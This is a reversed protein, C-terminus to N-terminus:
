KKGHFEWKGDIKKWPLAGASIAKQLLSQLQDDDRALYEEFTKRATLGTMKGLTALAASKVKKIEDKKDLVLKLSSCALSEEFGGLATTADRRVYKDNDSLALGTVLSVDASMGFKGVAVAAAGRVAASKDALLKRLPKLADPWKREGLARAADARVLWTHDALYLILVTASAHTELKGLALAVSRRRAWEPAAQEAVIIEEAMAPAITLLTAFIKNSEKFRATPLLAKLRPICEKDGLRGLGDMTAMRTNQYKSGLTQRLAPLDEKTAFRVLLYAAALQKPRPGKAAMSSVKHRYTSWNDRFNAVALRRSTNDRSLLLTMLEEFRDVERPGASSTRVSQTEPASSPVEQKCSTQLLPIFSALALCSRATRSMKCRVWNQNLHCNMIM